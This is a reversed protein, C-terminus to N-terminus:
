LRAIYLQELPQFGLRMLVPGFNRGPRVSHVIAVVGLGRLEEHALALFQRGVNGTRLEPRLFVADACARFEGKHHPSTFLWFVAYGALSGGFDRLTWLRLANRQEGQILMDWDIEGMPDVGAAETDHALTLAAIDRWCSELSEGAFILGADTIASAGPM